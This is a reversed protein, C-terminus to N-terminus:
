ASTPRKYAIVEEFGANHMDIGDINVTYCDTKYALLVHDGAQVGTTGGAAHCLAWRPEREITANKKMLILGGESVTEAEEIWTYLLTKGTCFLKGDRKYAMTSADSTNYMTVGDIEFTYSVPRHSLLLEDGAKLVSEDGAVVCDCWMTDRSLFDLLHIGGHKLKATNDRKTYLVNTNTARLEM